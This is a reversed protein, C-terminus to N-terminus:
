RPMPRMLEFSIRLLWPASETALKVPSPRCRASPLLDQAKRISGDHIRQLHLITTWARLNDPDTEQSIM